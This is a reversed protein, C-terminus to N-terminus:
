RPFLQGGGTAVVSKWYDLFGADLAASHILLSRISTKNKLRM